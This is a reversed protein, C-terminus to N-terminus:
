FPVEEGSLVALGASLILGEEEKPLALALVTRVFEGRLSLDNEYESPDIKVVTENKIEVHFHNGELSASLQL